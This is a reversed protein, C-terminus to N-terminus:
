LLNLSLIQEGAGISHKCPVQLIQLPANSLKGQLQLICSTLNKMIFSNYM